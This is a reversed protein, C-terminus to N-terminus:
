FKLKIKYKILIFYDSELDEFPLATKWFEPGWSLALAAKPHVLGPERWPSERAM